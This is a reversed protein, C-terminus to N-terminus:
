PSGSQARLQPAVQRVVAPGAMGLASGRGLTNLKHGTTLVGAPGRSRGPTEPM